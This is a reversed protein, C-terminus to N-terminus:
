PHAPTGPTGHFGSDSESVSTRTLLVACLELLGVVVHPVWVRDAFQFIWPSAALFIGGIVDMTLHARFPLLKVLGLEYNTFISYILVAFGLIIPVSAEIGVSEFGFLKPSFVLALAVVYDLIGHVRRSIIHMAGYDLGM